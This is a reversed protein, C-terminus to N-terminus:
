VFVRRRRALFLLLRDLEKKELNRFWDVDDGESEGRVIRLCTASTQFSKRGTTDVQYVRRRGFTKVADDYVVGLFEAEVNEVIKGTAYGRRRLSEALKLPNRRLVICKQQKRPLRVLLHGSVVTNDEVHQSLKQKLIRMDVAFSDAAGLRKGIRTQKVFAPIDVFEYGLNKALRKGVTTKGVGPTGSM